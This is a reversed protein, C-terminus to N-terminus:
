KSVDEFSLARLLDRMTSCDVNQAVAHLFFFKTSPLNILFQFTLGIIIQM